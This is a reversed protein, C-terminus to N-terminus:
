GVKYLLKIVWWWFAALIALGIIVGAVGVTKILKLSFGDLSRQLKSETEFEEDRIKKRFKNNKAM